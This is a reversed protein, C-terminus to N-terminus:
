RGSSHPSAAPAFTARRPNVPVRVWKVERVRGGDGARVLLRDGVFYGISDAGWHVPDVGGEQLPAEAQGPPFACLSGVKAICPGIRAFAPEGIFVTLASDASISDAGIARRFLVPAPPADLIWVGSTTAAYIANGDASFAMRLPISSDPFVPMERENGTVLNMFWVRRGSSDTRAAARIFALVGGSPSLAPADEDSLTYTLQFVPGGSAQGAWLEGAEAQGDAVFVVFADTGPTIRNKLPYFTDRCAATSILLPVIACVAFHSTRLAPHPAM